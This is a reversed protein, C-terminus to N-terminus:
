ISFEEGNYKAAHAEVYADLFEQDTCPAMENHLAERIEDDMLNVCAAFSVECGDLMVNGDHCCAELDLDDYYYWHGNIEVNEEDFARDNYIEGVFRIADDLSISHSTEITEITENTNRNFIRFM